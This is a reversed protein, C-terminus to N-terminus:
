VSLPPPACSPLADPTPLLADPASNPSSVPTWPKLIKLDQRKRFRESDLPDDGKPALVRETSDFANERSGGAVADEEEEEEALVRQPAATCSAFAMAAGRMLDRRTVAASGILPEDALGLKGQVGPAAGQM